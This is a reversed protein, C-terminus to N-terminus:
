VDIRLNRVFVAVAVISEVITKDFNLVTALLQVTRSM